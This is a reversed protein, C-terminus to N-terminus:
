DGTAHSSHIIAELTKFSSKEKFEKRFFSHDSNFVTADKHM